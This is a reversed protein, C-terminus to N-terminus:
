SKTRGRTIVAASPGDSGFTIMAIGLGRMGVTARTMRALVSASRSSGNTSAALDIPMLSVRIASRCMRGWVSAGSITSAVAWSPEVMRVSAESDNRPRPMGSGYGDRPRMSDPDAASYTRVAGQSTIKGPKAMLRATNPVLRNPSASRSMRSGLCRPQHALQWDLLRNEVDLPQPRHEERTRPQELGDVVDREVDATALRQRDHAFGTAALAHGRQRDHAEDGVGGAPDDAARNLEFSGIKEIEVLVPHPLDPSIANRHNELLRHGREIRHHPDSVLDGLRYPQM